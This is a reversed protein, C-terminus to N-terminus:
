HMMGYAETIDCLEPRRHEQLRGLGKIIQNQGGRFRMLPLAPGREQVDTCATRVNQNWFRICYEAMVVLPISQFHCGRYTSM